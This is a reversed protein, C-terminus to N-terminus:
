FPISDQDMAQDIVLCCKKYKKESGCYCPKNRGTKRMQQFLPSRVITRQYTCETILEDSDDKKEEEKTRFLWGMDNPLDDIFDFVTRDRLKELAEDQSLAFAKDVFDSDIFDLDIIDHDFYNTIKENLEIARIDCCCSVLMAPVVSFDDYLKDFFDSFVKLIEERAIVNRMYLIVYANLVAGRLYENLHQNIVLSHLKEWDGNFTSALFEAVHETAVDGLHSDVTKYPTLCLRLAYPFAEKERFKSLIFFAVIGELWENHPMDRPSTALFKEVMELLKPTVYEKQELIREILEHPYGTIPRAIYAQLQEISDVHTSTKNQQIEPYNM